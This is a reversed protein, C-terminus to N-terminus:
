LTVSKTRGDADRKNAEDSGSRPARAPRVNEQENVNGQCKRPLSSPLGDDFTQRSAARTPSKPPSASSRISSPQWSSAANMDAEGRGLAVGEWGDAGYDIEEAGAFSACSRCAARRASVMLGCIRLPPFAGDTM